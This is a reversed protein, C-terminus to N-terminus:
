LRKYLINTIGMIQVNSASVEPTVYFDLVEGQRITKKPIGFAIYPSGFGKAYSSIKIGQKLVDKDLFMDEVEDSDDLPPRTEGAEQRWLMWRFVTDESADWIALKM